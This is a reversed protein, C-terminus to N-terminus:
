SWLRAFHLCKLLLRMLCISRIVIRPRSMDQFWKADAKYVRFAVYLQRGDHLSKLNTVKDIFYDVPKVDRFNESNSLHSMFRMIQESLVIDFEGKQLYELVHEITKFGAHQDVQEPKGRVKSRKASGSAAQVNGTTRSSAFPQCPFCVVAVTPTRTTPKCTKANGPICLSCNTKDIQDRLSPYLHELFVGHVDDDVCDPGFNLKIFHLASPRIDAASVFYFPLSLAKPDCVHRSTSVFCM